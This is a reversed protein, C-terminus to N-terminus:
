KLKVEEELYKEYDSADMLNALESDNEIELVAIWGKGYPEENILEPSDDLDDNVEVV